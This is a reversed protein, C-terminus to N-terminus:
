VDASKRVRAAFVKDMGEVIREAVKEAVKIGEEDLHRRSKPEPLGWEKLLDDVV